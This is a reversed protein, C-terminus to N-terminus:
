LSADRLVLELAGADGEERIGLDGIEGRRLASLHALCFWTHM